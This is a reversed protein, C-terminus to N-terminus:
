AAAVVASARCNDQLALRTNDECRQGDHLDVVVAKAGRTTSSQTRENSSCDPDKKMMIIVQLVRKHDGPVARM